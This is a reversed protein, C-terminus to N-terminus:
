LIPSQQNRGGRGSYPQRRVQKRQRRRTSIQKLKFVEDDANKSFIPAVVGGRSECFVKAGWYAAANTVGRIPVPDTVAALQALQKEYRIKVDQVQLAGRFQLGDAMWAWDVLFTQQIMNLLGDNCQRMPPGTYNQTGSQREWLKLPVVLDTPLQPTLSFVDGVGNPYLINCGSDDVVVRCESDNIPPTPIAILWAEKAYTEVGVSALEIQVREFAANLVQFTFPATDTLVDGGAVESDNLIMRIRNLVNEATVYATTPLIPM